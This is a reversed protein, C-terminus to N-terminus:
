TNLHAIYLSYPLFLSLSLLPSTPSLFFVGVESRKRQQATNESLSRLVQANIDRSAPGMEDDEQEAEEEHELVPETYELPPM